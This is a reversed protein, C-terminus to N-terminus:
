GDSKPLLVRIAAPKITSMKPRRVNCIVILQCGHLIQPWSILTSVQLTKGRETKERFAQSICLNNM